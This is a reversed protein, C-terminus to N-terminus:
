FPCADVRFQVDVSVASVSVSGTRAGMRVNAGPRIPHDVPQLILAERALMGTLFPLRFRTDGAVNWRREM